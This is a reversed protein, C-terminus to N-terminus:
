RAQVFMSPSRMLGSGAAGTGSKQRGLFDASREYAAPDSQQGLNFPKVVFREQEVQPLCSAAQAYSSVAISSMQSKFPGTATRASEWPSPVSLNRSWGAVPVLCFAEPIGLTM